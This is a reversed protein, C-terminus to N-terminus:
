NGEETNETKGPLSRKKALNPKSWSVENTKLRSHILNGLVCVCMWVWIWGGVCGYVWMCGGM